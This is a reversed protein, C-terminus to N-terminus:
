ENFFILCFLFYKFYTSNCITSNIHNVTFYFYFHDNLFIVNVYRKCYRLTMMKLSKSIFFFLLLFFVPDHAACMSCKVRFFAVCINIKNFGKRNSLRVLGYWLKTNWTFDHLKFINKPFIRKCKASYLFEFRSPLVHPHTFASLSM